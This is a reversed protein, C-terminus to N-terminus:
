FVWPNLQTQCIKRRLSREPNLYKSKQFAECIFPDLTMTNTYKGQGPGHGCSQLIQVRSCGLQVTYPRPLNASRTPHQHMKAIYWYSVTIPLHTQTITLGTCYYHLCKETTSHKAIV